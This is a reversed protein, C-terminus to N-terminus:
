EGRRVIHFKADHWQTKNETLYDRLWLQDEEPISKVGEEIIRNYIEIYRYDDNLLQTRKLEVEPNESPFICDEVTLFMTDVDCLYKTEEVFQKKSVRKGDLPSIYRNQKLVDHFVFSCIKNLFKM